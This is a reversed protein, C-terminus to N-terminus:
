PKKAHPEKGKANKLLDRIVTMRHEFVEPRDPRNVTDRIALLAMQAIRAALKRNGDSQNELDLLARIQHLPALERPDDSALGRVNLSQTNTSDTKM